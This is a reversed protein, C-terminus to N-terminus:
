GQGGMVDARWAAFGAEREADTMGAVGMLRRLAEPGAIREGSRFRSLASPESFSRRGIEALPWDRALCVDDLWRGFATAPPTLVSLRVGSQQRNM